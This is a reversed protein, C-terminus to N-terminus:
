LGRDANITVRLQRTRVTGNFEAEAGALIQRLEALSRWSVRKDGYSGESIGNRIALKLADIQAQTVAM